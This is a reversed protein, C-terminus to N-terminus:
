RYNTVYGKEHQCFAQVESIFKGHFGLDLTFKDTANNALQAIRNSDLVPHESGSGFTAFGSHSVDATSLSPAMPDRSSVDFNGYLILSVVGLVYIFVVLACSGKQNKAM